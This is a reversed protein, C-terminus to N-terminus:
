EEIVEWWGLKKYHTCFTTPTKNEFLEHANRVFDACTLDRERRISYPAKFDIEYLWPGCYGVEKLAQLLAQWNQKGEGPLWHRENFFDYDSVHTYVIKSGVSRIFTGADEGLLHNTDFCVRLADHASILELMEASDHGLCSRPLDEVLIVAGKQLAIEALRALSKKACEMRTPRDADDIPEGSPHIIYRTIGIAVGKDILSAFYDVTFDALTPNSIDIIDFPMFPLHQSVEIGYKKSMSGILEYDIKATAEYGLSIEMVSIGNAQYDAFLQENIPKGCSSLGIQYM